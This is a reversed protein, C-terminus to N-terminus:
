RRPGDPFVAEITGQSGASEVFLQLYSKVVYDERAFGLAAAFADISAPPGELELFSGIPTEDLTVVLDGSDFTERYKQYRFSVRYGLGALIARLADADDIRTEHELRTKYGGAVPEDKDTVPAKFTLIHRGGVTRLRLLMGRERNRGLPDDYIWNEEFLRGGRSRAGLATLRMRMAAPDGVPLKIEVERM